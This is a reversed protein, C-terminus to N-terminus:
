CAALWYNVLKVNYGFNLRPRGGSVPSISKLVWCGFDRCESLYLFIWVLTFLNNLGLREMMAFYM